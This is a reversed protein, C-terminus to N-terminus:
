QKNTNATKSEEPKKRLNLKDQRDKMEKYTKYISKSHIYVIITSIILAFVFIGLEYISLKFFSFVISVIILLFSTFFYVDRAFFHTQKWIFETERTCKFNIAPRSLYPVNKLKISLVMMIFALPLFTILSIPLECPMGVVIIDTLCLHTRSLCNEYLCFVFLIKLFFSLKPMKNTLCIAIALLLPIIVSLILVWKTTLLSVEENFNFLIPIQNPIMTILLSLYVAFNIIGLSIFIIKNKLKM